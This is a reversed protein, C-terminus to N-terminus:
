VKPMKPLLGHKLEMSIEPQVTLYITNHGSKTITTQIKTIM